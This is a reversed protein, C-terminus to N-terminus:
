DEAQVQRVLIQGRIFITFHKGDRDDQANSAYMLSGVISQYLAQVDNRASNANKILKTGTALPTSVGTSNEMGFRALIDKVYTSQDISISGDATRTVRM